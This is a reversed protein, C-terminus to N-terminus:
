MKHDDNHHPMADSATARAPAQTRPSARFIARDIRPLVSSDLHKAADFRFGDVGIAQVMWQAYRALYALNNEAIPDGSTPSTTNFPYISINSQGTAPDNVVRPALAQDPYFRRNSDSPVNAIRGNLATTGAPLNNAFGPVPNRIAQYNKTQDIDILGSIRINQDGTANAAHFDGNSDGSYSLFFGPYGGAAAFGTTTQDKFGDHNSINDAFVNLGARHLTSVTSKLGTETGYLTPNGASGLDFRDFLDYGVSSNGSDARGPPPTWLGGYGAQFVDGTRREMTQWSGDFWQLVAANSVDEGRAVSGTIALLFCAGATRVGARFTGTFRKEIM